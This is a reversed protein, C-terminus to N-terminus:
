TSHESEFIRQDSETIWLAIMMEIKTQRGRLAVLITYGLCDPDFPNHWNQIMFKQVATAPVKM